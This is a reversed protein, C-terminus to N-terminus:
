HDSTDWNKFDETTKGFYDLVQRSVLEIEGAANAVSVFGPISDITLRLSQENSKLAEEARKRDDIDTLLMYWGTIRGEADRAPLARSQFCRYVGDFRHGTSTM